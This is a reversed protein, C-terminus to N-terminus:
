MPQGFLIGCKKLRKEDALVMSCVESPLSTIDPYKNADKFWGSKELWSLFDDEPVRMAQIKATLLSPSEPDVAAQAQQAAEAQAQAPSPTPNAMQAPQAEAPKAPESEKAPESPAPQTQVPPRAPDLPRHMTEAKSKKPETPKTDKAPGKAPETQTPQATATQAAGDGTLNPKDQPAPFAEEISTDGDRIATGLGILIELKDLTVDDIKRAGVVALIRDETVGMQKLRDFVKTRTEVLSKVNGVAVQKAAEFVPRILAQPVVKFVADRFAIASCANCALNIDDEDITDKNKKKTIRRRKEITIATNKELDHAVAQVIVHPTPGDTVTQLIRSGARLNSYCAVAIEALRVSPGQIAKGGRPLTYFCASATDEDLTAFSLMDQKVKSLTRPFRKATSIQQNIEAAAITDLSLSYGQEQEQDNM